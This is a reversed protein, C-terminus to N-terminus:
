PLDLAFMTGTRRLTLGACQRRGRCPFLNLTKWHIVTGFAEQRLEPDHTAILDAGLAALVVLGVVCAGVMATRNRRLARWRRGKM